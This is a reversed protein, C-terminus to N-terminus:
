IRKYLYKEFKKSWKPNISHLIDGIIFLPFFVMTEALDKINEIKQKKQEQEWKKQENDKLANEHKEIANKTAYIYRSSKATIPLEEHTIVGHM